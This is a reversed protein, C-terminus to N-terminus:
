KRALRFMLCRWVLWGALRRVHWGWGAFVGAVGGAGHMVWRFRHAFVGQFLSDTYSRLEQVRTHCRDRTRKFDAVRQPNQPLVLSRYPLVLSSPAGTCFHFPLPSSLFAAWLAHSSTWGGCCQCAGASGRLVLVGLV